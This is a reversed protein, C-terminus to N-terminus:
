KYYKLCCCCCRFSCVILFPHSSKSYRSVEWELIQALFADGTRPLSYFHLLLLVVSTDKFVAPLPCRCPMSLSCVPQGTHLSLVSQGLKGPNAWKCAIGTGLHTLHVIWLWSFYVEERQMEIGISVTELVSGSAGALEKAKPTLKLSCGSELQRECAKQVPDSSAESAWPYLRQWGWRCCELPSAWLPVEWEISGPLHNPRLTPCLGSFLCMLRDSTRNPQHCVSAYFQAWKITQMCGM